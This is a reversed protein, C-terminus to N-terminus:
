HAPRRQFVLAALPRQQDPGFHGFTRTLSYHSTLWKYVEFDYDQGFKDHAFRSTWIVYDVREQELRAVYAREDEQSLLGAYIDYWRSPAETGTFAYMMPLEPILVVQRASRKQELMFDYIQHAIRADESNLYISGWSTKFDVNRGSGTPFRIAAFLLVQAALLSAIIKERQASTLEPVARDACRTVVLLFVLFAPASYYIGYGYPETEALTRLGTVIAFFSITMDCLIRPESPNKRLENSSYLLFALAILWSGKPFILLFAFFVITNKLDGLGDSYYNILTLIVALILVSSAFGAASRRVAKAILIWSAIAAVSSLALAILESPVLRLGIHATDRAAFTRAYYGGPAYQWSKYLILTFGALDFFVAYVAATLLLGPTLSVIQGPIDRLSRQRIAQVAFVFGLMLYCAAGMEQKTILALGSALGALALYNRALGRLLYNLTFLACSLSLLVGLSTAYSYPFIYNFITFGFGQLLLVLAATLGVARGGLLQGVEFLTLASGVLLALGLGYLISLREGFIGLLLASIYPELPGYPYWLDRYLLKGRLLQYPVYVERGCDLQIDGWHAWTLCFLLVAVAVTTARAAADPWERVIRKFSDFAGETDTIKELASGADTYAAAARMSMSGSQAAAASKSTRLGDGGGSRM